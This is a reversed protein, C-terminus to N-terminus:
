LLSARTECRADYTVLWALCPSDHMM